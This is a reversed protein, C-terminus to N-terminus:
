DGDEGLPERRAFFLTDVKEEDILDNWWSVTEVTVEDFTRRLAAEFDPNAFTSWVGLVGGPKLHDYVQELGEDTYFPASEPALPEDPAHDVDVLIADVPDTPPGLLRAYV